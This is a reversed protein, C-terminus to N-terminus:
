KKRGVLRGYKFFLVLGIALVITPYIFLVIILTTSDIWVSPGHQLVLASRYLMPFPNFVFFVYTWFSVIADLTVYIIQDNVLITLILSIIGYILVSYALKRM